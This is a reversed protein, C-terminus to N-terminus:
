STRQHRMFASEIERLALYIMRLAVYNRALSLVIFKHLLRAFDSLPNHHTLAILPRPRLM